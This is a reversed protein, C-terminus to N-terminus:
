AEQNGVGLEWSGSVFTADLFNGLKELRGLNKSGTMPEWAMCRFIIEFDNISSPTRSKSPFITRHIEHPWKAHQVLFLTKKLGLDDMKM